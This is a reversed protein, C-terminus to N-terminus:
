ADLRALLARAAARRQEGLEPAVADIMAGVEAASAGLRRAGRMHGLLPDELGGLATLLSVALLERELLALGPRALVRGYAHELTWAPLRPDLRALGELVRGATPGYVQDFARRGADARQAAAIEGADPAPGLGAAALAALARPYGAYPVLMLLTERQAADTAGLSTALALSRRLLDRAGVAGAAAVCGLAARLESARRSAAGPELWEVQALTDLSGALLARTPAHWPADLRAAAEAPALWELAEIGSGARPEGRAQARFVFARWTYLAPGGAARRKAGDVVLALRPEAVVLGAEEAVERALADALPEGARVSGGPLDWTPVWRGERLRNNCVLLVRGERQLLAFAGDRHGSPEVPPDM